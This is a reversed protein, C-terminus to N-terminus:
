CGVVDMSQMYRRPNRTLRSRIHVIERTPQLGVIHPLFGFSQLHLVLAKLFLEPQFHVNRGEAGPGHALDGYGKFNM